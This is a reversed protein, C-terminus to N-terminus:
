NAAGCANLGWPNVRPILPRPQRIRQVFGCVAGPNLDCAVRLILAGPPNTAVFWPSADIKSIHQLWTGDRLFLDFDHSKGLALMDNLDDVGQGVLMQLALHPGHAQRDDGQERAAVDQQLINGAQSFGGQRQGQRPYRPSDKPRMWHVLSRSGLSMVPSEM